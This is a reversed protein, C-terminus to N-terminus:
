VTPVIEVADGIKGPGSGRLPPRIIAWPRSTGNEALRGQTFADLFVPEREGESPSLTLSLPGNPSAGTFIWETIKIMFVHVEVQDQSNKGCLSEGM